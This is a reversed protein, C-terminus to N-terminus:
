GYALMQFLVGLETGGPSSFGLGRLSMGAGGAKTGSNLCVAEGHENKNFSESVCADSNAVVTLEDLIVCQCQHIIFVYTPNPACTHVHRDTETHTTCLVLAEM